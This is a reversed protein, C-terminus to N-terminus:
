SPNEALRRRKRADSRFLVTLLGALVVVAVGGGLRMINAAVPAYRGQSSDYHFCYLLLRDFPTGIKGQAAELLALKLSKEPYEVGYLYRVITGDPSAVAIAAAHAYEKREPVYTYQMGLADAYAKVNEASGTLFHWGNKAEPKGYAGLYRRQTALAREPKENPDISVTVIRFERGPTFDLTKMGQVFGNLMLSCLMPCNSYNFTFVVPVTGDTYDGLTVPRGTEDLFGLSRPIRAGLHENVDVSELAKPLPETRDGVADTRVPDASASSAAFLLAALLLRAATRYTM